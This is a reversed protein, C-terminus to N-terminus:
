PELAIRKQGVDNTKLPETTFKYGLWPTPNCIAFSLAPVIQMSFWSGQRQVGKVEVLARDCLLIDRDDGTEWTKVKYEM